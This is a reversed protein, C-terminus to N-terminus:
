EAVVKASEGFLLTDPLLPMNLMMMNATLLIAGLGISTWLVVQYYQIDSIERFPNYYEGNAKYYGYAASSFQEGEEGEENQEQGGDDNEDEDELRRRAALRDSFIGDKEEVLLYVVLTSSNENSYDAIAKLSRSLNADVDAASASPGVNFRMSELTNGDGAAAVKSKMLTHAEIDASDVSKVGLQRTLKKGESHNMNFEGVASDNELLGRLTPMTALDVSDGSIEILIGGDPRNFLNPVVNMGPYQTTSTRRSKRNGVEHTSRFFSLVGSATTQPATATTRHVTGGSGYELVSISTADVGIAIAAASLLTFRVM